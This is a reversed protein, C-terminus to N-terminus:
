AAERSTRLCEESKLAAGEVGDGGTLRRGLQPYRDRVAGAVHELQACMESSIQMSGGERKRPPELVALASTSSQSGGGRPLAGPVVWVRLYPELVLRTVESSCSTVQKLFMSGARGAISM